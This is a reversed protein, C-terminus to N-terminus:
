FEAFGGQGGTAGVAARGPRPARGSSQGKVRLPVVKRDSPVGSVLASGQSQAAAEGLQFQAVQEQLQAAQAALHQATSSLEETQAANQQTVGDMQTVAKNVQEIGQAQEGSAAAIETILDAVRKVQSVIETLTAGARNVLAGGSEVKAVSNTILGTIEKSAAASRQALARVEQAVVAFGRGQEGARAAEVAANLALLNTQFAIEDITTIIAAIQKSSATIAQMAEVAERVVTGGAEAVGKASMAMRNAQKANDASQTITGTMEELSAATEGLSSAQEQAGSSLQASGAALQQAAAATQQATQQVQTMSTEFKALMANLAQGMQGLEDQTNAEMRRTLDGQAVADVQTVMALVPRSISKSILWAAGVGVAVALLALSVLFVRATTYDAEATRAEHASQEVEYDSFTKIAELYTRQAPRVRELMVDKAGAYDGREAIKLFEDEHPNYKARAEIISQFLEREKGPTVVKELKELLEKRQQRTKQLSLLTEKIQKEDDLILTDRMYRSTQLLAEVWAGTVILKPVRVSALDEVNRNFASLRVLSTVAVIVLLGIVLGFGLALRLRITLKGPSM